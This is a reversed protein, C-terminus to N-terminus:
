RARKAARPARPSARWFVAFLGGLALGSKVLLAKVPSLLDDVSERSRGSREM